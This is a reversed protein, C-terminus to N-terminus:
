PANHSVFQETTDAPHARKGAERDYKPTAVDPRM